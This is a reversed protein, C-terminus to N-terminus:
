KTSHTTINNMEVPKNEQTLQAKQNKNCTGVSISISAKVKAQVLTRAPHNNSMHFSNVMTLVICALSYYMKAIISCNRLAKDMISMGTSLLLEKQKRKNHSIIPLLQLIILFHSDMLNAKCAQMIVQHDCWQLHTVRKIKNPFINLQLQQQEPQKSHQM